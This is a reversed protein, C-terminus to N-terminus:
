GTLNGKLISKIQVQTGSPSSLQNASRKIVPFNPTQNKIKILMIQLVIGILFNLIYYGTLSPVYASSSSELGILSGTRMFITIRLVHNIFIFAM